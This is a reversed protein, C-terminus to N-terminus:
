QQQQQTSYNFSSPVTILCVPFYQGFIYFLFLLLLKHGTTTIMNAVNEGLTDKGPYTLQRRRKRVNWNAAMKKWKYFKDAITSTINNYTDIPHEM